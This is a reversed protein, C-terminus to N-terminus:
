KKKYDQVSGTCKFKDYLRLNLNISKPLDNVPAGFRMVVAEIGGEGGDECSPNERKLSSLGKEVSKSPVRRRSEALRLVVGLCKGRGITRGGM